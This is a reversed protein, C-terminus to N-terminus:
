HLKATVAHTPGLLDDVIVDIGQWGHLVGALLGVGSSGWRYACCGPPLVASRRFRLGPRILSMSCMVRGVKRELLPLSIERGVVAAHRLAERQQQGLRDIRTHLVAQVTEPLELKGQVDRLVANGNEVEVRGEELLSRCIEEIFFANGGSREHVQECLHQPLKEAGLASRM